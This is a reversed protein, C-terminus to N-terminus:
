LPAFSTPQYVDSVARGLFGDGPKGRNKVNTMMIDSGRKESSNKTHKERNQELSKSFFPHNAVNDRDKLFDVVNGFAPIARGDRENKKLYVRWIKVADM